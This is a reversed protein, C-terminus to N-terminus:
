VARWIGPSFYRRTTGAPVTWFDNPANQNNYETTIWDSSLAEARIRMEDMIGDFYTSPTDEELNSIYFASGADTQRTNSISGTTGQTSGDVYYQLTNSSVTVSVYYLTGTSPTWDKVINDTSDSQNRHFFSLQLTGGNNSLQWLFPGRNDTGDRNSYIIQSNGSSPTSEFNLWGSFTLNGVPSLTSAPSTDGFYESNTSEFDRGNGIKGTGTGVTNTDTLENDNATSDIANGSTEQMHWVAGYDSWVAQSGFPANADYAVANANGAWLYVSTDSNYSLTPIKLWIEATEDAPSISVVEYPVESAGASDTTIRLDTSALKLQVDSSFTPSGSGTLTNGNGSEDAYDNDFKWHGELNADSISAAYMDQKIEEPTRIDSFVMVNDIKGDFYNTGGIRFEATGNYISTESGGVYTTSQSVGNKYVSWTKASVDVSLAIHVWKGVDSSSLIASSTALSTVATGAGSYYGYLKDDNQFQFSYSRQNGTSEYKNVIAFSTGSSSPLQELKIWAEVSIDGTIDLGTQSGDTIYAYQSSSLELDISYQSGALASYIASPITNGTGTDVICAPFDTLDSSGSVKTNDTQLEQSNSWDSDNAGTWPVNTSFVPSGSATLNNTGADDNHDNADNYWSGVLNNSTGTLISYMNDQIEQQTRIDSWVRVNSILGDFFEGPTGTNLRMGIAFDATTDAISTATGSNNSGAQSVGDKWCTASRASVDLAIAIHVWKGIDSASFVASTTTWQTSTGSTGDSNWQIRLKNDTTVHFIYARQNNLEYKSVIAMNTGPLSEVKVWAEISIDGTISLAANDAVYAYQSSSSELDLSWANYSM